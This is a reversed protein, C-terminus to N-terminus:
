LVSRDKMAIDGAVLRHLVGEEDRLLLAGTEDVDEVFGHIPNETDGISAHQGITVLRARWANYLTDTGLQTAREDLRNLLFVLSALRDVPQGLATEISIAWDALETGSFDIRVNVGIGLVVGEVRNGTWVAEPLIGCVKRGDLLVDNPWKIAIDKAGLHELLDSVAVAGLMTMQTLQQGAPRFIVSLILACDPPSYWTRGLRGRGKVQENAAVVSGASAGQRLWELALDNTSDVQEYFRVNRPALAAYVDDAILSM